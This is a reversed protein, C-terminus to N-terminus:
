RSKRGISYPNFSDLTVKDDKKPRSRRRRRPAPPPPPGDPAPPHADPGAAARPPPAPRRGLVPLPRALPAMAPHSQRFYLSAPRLLTRQRTPLQAPWLATRRVGGM